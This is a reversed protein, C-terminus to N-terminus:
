DDEHMIKQLATYCLRSCFCSEVPVMSNDGHTSVVTHAITHLNIGLLHYVICEFCSSDCNLCFKASDLFDCLHRGILHQNYHKRSNRIVRGACEQLSPMGLKVIDYWSDMFPNGSVDVSDLKLNRVSLPLTRLQNQAVSLYRLNVLQGINRPLTSLQNEDLKIHVLSVMTGFSIPLCSLSNKSLDLLTLSSALSTRCLRSPLKTLLNSSVNLAKLLKLRDLSVDLEKIKNNTMNLSVLDKLQLIRVDFRVMGCDVIDLKKLSGPFMTSTPYDSRKYIMLETKPKEIESIKAPTLTPLKLKKLDKSTLKLTSLLTRLSSPDASSLCLDHPPERFRITAKGSELFKVFVKAINGSIKYKAGDMNKATCLLLFATNQGGSQNQPLSRCPKRGVSLSAKVPKRHGGVGQSSCSWNQIAVDCILRM